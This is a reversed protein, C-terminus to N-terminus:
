INRREDTFQRYIFSFSTSARNRLRDESMSPTSRRIVYSINKRSNIIIIKLNNSAFSPRCIALEDRAAFTAVVIELYYIVEGLNKLEYAEELENIIKSTDEEKGAILLDPIYVIIYISNGYRALTFLCSNAKSQQFDYKLLSEQIKIYRARAAQKLRYITKNM